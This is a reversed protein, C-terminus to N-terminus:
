EPRIMRFPRIKRIGIIQLFFHWLFSINQITYRYWLRKFDKSFLRYIWEIGLKSIWSPAKKVRGGFFDFIAGCPIMVAGKVKSIHDDIWFDQKPTGLGVCLIDPSLSNIEKCVTKDEDPTLPRFPPSFHGVINIYPYDKELNEKMRKIVEPHGGYLYFSYRKSEAREILKVLINTADFQDCPTRKFTRLWYVFPIGDPGVLDAQNYIKMVRKDKFASM